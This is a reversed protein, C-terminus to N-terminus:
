NNKKGEEVACSGGACRGADDAAITQLPSAAQAEEWVKNLVQLFVDSPQAGSVAYKQNFVFFPVGRVGLRSAEVEDRRVDDAYQSGALMQQVDAGNMGAKEALEVLVRHSSISASATFYAYFLQETMEHLKGQGKAYHALRHADFTNLPKMGEFRFALGVSEAQKAVQATMRKAEEISMGYKQALHEHITIGSETAANPDLEFSRFVVNVREKHPFQELAEELRRKGIYCFPCVFDSWVEIQIM